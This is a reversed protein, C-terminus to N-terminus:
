ALQFGIGSNYARDWWEDTVQRPVINPNSNDVPDRWRRVSYSGTSNKETLRECFATLKDGYLVIVLCFLVVALLLKDM